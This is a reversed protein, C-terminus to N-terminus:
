SLGPMRDPTKGGLVSGRFVVICRYVACCPVAFAIVFVYIGGSVRGFHQVKLRQAGSGSFTLGQLAPVRYVRFRVCARFGSGSIGLGM